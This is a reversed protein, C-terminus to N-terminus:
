ELSVTGHRDITVRYDCYRFSVKCGFRPTGVAKPAFLKDLAEPDVATYLSEYEPPCLDEPQVGEADAVAEVVALSPATWGAEDTGDSGPNM